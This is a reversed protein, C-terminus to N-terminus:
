EGIIDVRHDSTKFIELASFSLEQWKLDIAYIILVEDKTNKIRDMLKLIPTITSSNMFELNKFNLIIKKHKNLLDNFIPMLFVSSDRQTSRGEWHVTVHNELEQIKLTLGNSKFIEDM